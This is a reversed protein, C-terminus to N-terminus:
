GCSGLEVEENRDQSLDKADILSAWLDRYRIPLAPVLCQRSAKFYHHVLFAEKSSATGLNLYLLLM